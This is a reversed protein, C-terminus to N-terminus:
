SSNRGEHTRDEILDYSWVHNPHEPRLRICSDDTLWLRGRKPQKAAQSADEAGVRKWIGEVRGDSVSWGAQRLLRGGQPLWLPWILRYIAQGPRIEPNPLNQQLLRRHCTTAPQFLRKPDGPANMPITSAGSSVDANFVAISSNPIM